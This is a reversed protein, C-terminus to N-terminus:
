FTHHSFVYTLLQRVLFSGPSQTGIGSEGHVDESKKGPHPRILGRRAAGKRYTECTFINREDFGHLEFEAGGVRRHVGLDAFDRDQSSAHELPQVGIEEPRRVARHYRQCRLRHPRKPRHVSGQAAGGARGNGCTEIYEHM